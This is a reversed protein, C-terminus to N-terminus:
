EIILVMGPPVLTIVGDKVSISWSSLERGSDGNTLTWNAVNELGTCNVYTGPLAGGNKPLNKVTLTGSVSLGYGYANQAGNGKATLTGGDITVSSGNKSAFVGNTGGTTKITGGEIILNCKNFLYIGNKSGSLNFNGNLTLTKGGKIYM